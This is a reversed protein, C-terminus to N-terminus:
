DTTIGFWATASWAPTPMMADTDYMRAVELASAYRRAWAVRLEGAGAVHRRTAAVWAGAQVWRGMPAGVGASALTGLGPRARVSARVWGLGDAIAGVSAAGGVGRGGDGYRARELRHLPGFAAGVSGTGARGEVRAIWWVGFREASADAFALAHGGLRPEGVAGGGLELEARDGRWVRGLALEIAGLEAEPDVAAAAHVRAAATLDWALGGGVLSPDLVDDIEAGVAVREATVAVRAGTRPRDDLGARHGDAVHAIQAPALAGGALAFWGARVELLRVARVVDSATQWDRERWHGDIWVGRGGLGLRAGRWEADVGLQLASYTADGQGGAGIAAGAGIGDARAVSVYLLLGVLARM